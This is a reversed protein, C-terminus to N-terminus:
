KVKTNENDSSACLYVKKTASDKSHIFMFKIVAFDRKMTLIFVPLMMDYFNLEM